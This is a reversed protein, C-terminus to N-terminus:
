KSEIPQTIYGGLPGISFVAELLVEMIMRLDTGLFPELVTACKHLQQM